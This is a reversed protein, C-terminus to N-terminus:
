AALQKLSTRFLGRLHRPVRSHAHELLAHVQDKSEPWIECIHVAADITDRLVEEVNVFQNRHVDRSHIEEALKMVERNFGIWLEKRLDPVVEMFVRYANGPNAHQCDLCVLARALEVLKKGETKASLHELLTCYYPEEAFLVDEGHQIALRVVPDVLEPLTEMARYLNGYHWSVNLVTWNFGKWGRVVARCARARVGEDEVFHMMNAADRYEVAGRRLIKRAVSLRREPIHAIIWRDNEAREKPDTEAELTRVVLDKLWPIVRVVSGHQMFGRIWKSSVVTTLSKWAAELMEPHDQHIASLLVHALARDTCHSDERKRQARATRGTRIKRQKRPKRRQRIM